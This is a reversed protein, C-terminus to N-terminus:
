RLETRATASNGLADTVKVVLTYVGDGYGQIQFDFSEGVSDAIGDAPYVVNWSGSNISYEASRIPSGADEAEFRVRRGGSAAEAVLGSLTPPTNDVLFSRSVKDGTLSRDAPNSTADNAIIHLTYRGDPMAVTDWAIVPERLETRLSRWLSEGEARYQIEYTLTDKNPDSAQWTVTQYGKRYMKRSFNTPSSQAAPAPPAGNGAAKTQENLPVDLGLIDMQANPVLPRQFTQGAPHLTIDTVEPRLNKELYITTVDFLEPGVEGSSNLVARWQIFRAAPSSIQEGSVLTYPSSWSSWTNDPKASNGVRTQLTMTAGTPIRADWRIKGWSSVTKTDRAPSRYIGESRRERLVRYIKAPNATVFLATDRGGAVFTVQDAEATFLLTSTKDQGVLYVRGEKGTGIMIRDDRSLALSLPMDTRSSWLQEATGEASIRYLAGVSGSSSATTGPSSLAATATAIVTVSETTGSVITPGAPTPPTPETAPAAPASAQQAGNVAAAYINGRSDTVLARVEQFPTDFLVTTNGSGNTKFVLGSSDSGAYINDEGDLALSVLHTEESTFIVESQGGPSIRHIQAKDGTAVILNGLSDVALAWIYRDDPDFFVDQSGDRGIRYVQGRPSTGAFLNSSRDMALAHVQLEKLDALVSGNGSADVKFIKGENGSGAYIAGTGDTVLSWLFPETAEYLVQTQPALSVTGDSTISVGDADGAQFDSQSELRWFTPLAALVTAALAFVILALLLARFRLM